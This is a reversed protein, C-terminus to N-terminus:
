ASVPLRLLASDRGIAVPRSGRGQLRLGPGAGPLADTRPRPRARPPLHRPPLKKPRRPAEVVPEEVVHPAAVKAVVEDPDSLLTVDAPLAVERLHISTDFDM